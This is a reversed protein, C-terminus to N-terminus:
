ALEKARRLITSDRLTMFKVSLDSNEVASLVLNIAEDIDQAWVVSFGEALESETFDPVGIEGSVAAMYADSIQHLGEDYERWEEVRGIEGTVEAVAGVEELLERALAEAIAENEEVGGGPLKYYDRQSAHLLAIRGESDKLVARAAFRRKYDHAGTQEHDPDVDTQRITRLTKM